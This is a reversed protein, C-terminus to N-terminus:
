EWKEGKRESKRKNGSVESMIGEEREGGKKVDGIGEEQRGEHEEERSDTGGM